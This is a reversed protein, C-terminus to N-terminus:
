RWYIPAIFQGFQRCEWVHPVQTSNMKKSRKDYHNAQFRLMSSLIDEITLILEELSKSKTVWVNSWKKVYINYKYSYFGILNPFFWQQSDFFQRGILVGTWLKWYWLNTGVRYNLYFYMYKLILYIVSVLVCAGESMTGKIEICGSYVQFLLKHWKM